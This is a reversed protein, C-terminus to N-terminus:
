YREEDIYSQAIVLTRFGERALNESEDELFGQYIARVRPLMASDAGKM